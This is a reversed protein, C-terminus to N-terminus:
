SYNRGAVDREVLKKIKVIYCVRDQDTHRQITGNLFFNHIYITAERGWCVKRGKKGVRERVGMTDIYTNEVVRNKVATLM